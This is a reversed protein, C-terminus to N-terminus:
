HEPKPEDLTHPDVLDHVRALWGLPETGFILNAQSIGDRGPGREWGRRFLEIRGQWTQQGRLPRQMHRCILLAAAGSDNHALAWEITESGVMSLWSDPLGHAALDPSRFLRLVPLIREGFATAFEDLGLPRRLLGSCEVEDLQREINILMSNYAFRRPPRAPNPFLTCQPHVARWGPLDDDLVTVRTSVWTAVGARNWKSPQLVLRLVLPGDRFEATDRSKVWRWGLQAALWRGAGDLIDGPRDTVDFQPAPMCSLIVRRGNETGTGSSFARRFITV